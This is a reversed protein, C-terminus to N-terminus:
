SEEIGRALFFEFLVFGFLVDAELLSRTVPGATSFNVVKAKLISNPLINSPRYMVM